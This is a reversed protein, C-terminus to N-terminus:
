FPSLKLYPRSWLAIVKSWVKHEVCSTSKSSENSQKIDILDKIYDPAIDNVIKYVESATQKMRRVHLPATNTSTLLAQLSSTFDNNIFRLARERNKELKNTSSTSFFYWALPCFNFNSVIFSNYTTMKGQKTLVVLTSWSQSNNQLEKVFKPYM